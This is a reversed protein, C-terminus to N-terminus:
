RLGLLLRLLSPLREVAAGQYSLLIPTLSGLAWMLITSAAIRVPAPVAAAVNPSAARSLRVHAVVALANVSAWLAVPAVHILRFGPTIFPVGMAHWIFSVAFAALINLSQHRRSAGLPAYVHQVLWNTLTGRWAWWLESPNRCSLLRAFNARMRVGYLLATAEVGRWVGM